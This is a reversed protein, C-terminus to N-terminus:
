AGQSVFKADFSSSVEPPNARFKNTVNLDTEKTGDVLLVDSYTVQAPHSSTKHNNRLGGVYTGTLKVDAVYYRLCAKGVARYVETTGGLPDVSSALM